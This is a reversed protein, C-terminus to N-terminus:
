KMFLQLTGHQCLKLILALPDSTPLNLDATQIRNHPEDKKRQAEYSM